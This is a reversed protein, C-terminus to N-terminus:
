AEDQEGSAAAPRKRVAYRSTIARFGDEFEVLIANMKGRAVVRCPQGRRDPLIQRWFWVYDYAPWPMALQYAGPWGQRAAPLRDLAACVPCPCRIANQFRDLRRHLPTARMKLRAPGIIVGAPDINAWDAEFDDTEPM